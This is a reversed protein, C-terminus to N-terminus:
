RNNKSCMPKKGSLSAKTCKPKKGSLMAKTIIHKNVVIRHEIQKLAVDNNNSINEPELM